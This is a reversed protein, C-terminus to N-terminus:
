IGYDEAFNENDGAIFTTYFPNENADEIEQFRLKGTMFLHEDIVESALRESRILYGVTPLSKVFKAYVWARNNLDRFAVAPNVVRPRRRILLESYKAKIFGMFGPTCYPIISIIDAPYAVITDVPLSHFFAETDPLDFVIYFQFFAEPSPIEGILDNLGAPM